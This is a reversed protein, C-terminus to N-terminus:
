QVQFEVANAPNGNIIFEAEYDGSRLANIQDAELSFGICTDTYDQDATIEDSEEYVQGEYYWRVFVDTGEAVQSDEAVVYLVETGAPFTSTSDVACGNRDLNTTTVVQGLEIGDETNVTTDRPNAQGQPVPTAASPASSNNNGLIQPLFVVAALILLAGIAITKGDLKFNGM